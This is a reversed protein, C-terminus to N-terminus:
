LAGYDPASMGDVGADFATSTDNGRYATAWSPVPAAGASHASVRWRGRVWQLTLQDFAWKQTPEITSSWYIAESWLELKATAGEYRFLRGAAVGALLRVGTPPPTLALAQEEASLEGPAASATWAVAILRRFAIPDSASTRHEIAVYNAGAALAGARTHSVGVPVGQDLALPNPHSTSDLTATGAAFGAAFVVAAPLVAVLLGAILRSRM